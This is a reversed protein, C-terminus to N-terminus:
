NQLKQLNIKSKLNSIHPPAKFDFGPIAKDGPTDPPSWPPAEEQGAGESVAAQWPAAGELQQLGPWVSM